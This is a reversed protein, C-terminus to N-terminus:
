EPQRRLTASPSEGFLSQYVVAFRGLEWFGYRTGVATVSTADPEEERLTRRALGMRRLLLYRKPSMGLHEQCCMRLTSESVGIAKCIEPIYLPQDSSEEVARRFRRMVIAHQGHALSQERDERYPLCDVMAAILAQELGRAADPNGIIEPANEALDGAAAHLRQLRVMAAPPPIILVADRPPTLDLGSMVEGVSAIDEIPLSMTGFSVSGSSRQFYEQAQGHRLIASQDIEIGAHLLAPGPQTRFTIYTRGSILNAVDCVRPLNDSFRQMWLRHLDTRTLKANFDGRGTVTLEVTAARITAAYDDPDTFSRVASSPM